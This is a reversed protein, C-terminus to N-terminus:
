ESVISVHALVLSLFVIETLGVNDLSVKVFVYNHEVCQKVFNM